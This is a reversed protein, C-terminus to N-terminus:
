LLMKRGNRTMSFDPFFSIKAFVTFYNWKRIVCHFVSIQKQQQLAPALQPKCFLFYQQSPAPWQRQVTSAPFPSVRVGRLLPKYQTYYWWLDTLHHIASQIGHYSPQPRHAFALTTYLSTQSQMDWHFTLASAQLLEGPNQIHCSILLGVHGPFILFTALFCPLSFEQPAVFLHMNQSIYIRPFLRINQSFFWTSRCNQPHLSKWSLSCSCPVPLCTAM